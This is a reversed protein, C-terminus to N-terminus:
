LDGAYRRQEGAARELQKMRAAIAAQQARQEREFRRQRKDQKYQREEQKFTYASKVDGHLKQLQALLDRMQQKQRAYEEPGDKALGDIYYKLWAIDHRLTNEYYLFPYSRYKQRWKYASLYDFVRWIWKCVGPFVILEDYNRSVITRLAGEDEAERNIGDFYRTATKYFFSLACQLRADYSMSQWHLWRGFRFVPPAAVITATGSVAAIVAIRSPNYNAFSKHPLSFLVLFFFLVSFRKKLM